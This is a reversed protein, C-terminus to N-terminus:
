LFYVLAIWLSENMRCTCKGWEWLEWLMCKGIAEEQKNSTVHMSNRKATQRFLGISANSIRWLPKTSSLQSIHDAYVVATQKRHKETYCHKSSTLLAMLNKFYRASSLWGSTTHSSSWRPIPALRLGVFQYMNRYGWRIKQMLSIELM